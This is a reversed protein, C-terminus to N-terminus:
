DQQRRQFPPTKMRTLSLGGSLWGSAVDEKTTRKRKKAKTEEEADMWDLAIARRFQYSDLIRKADAGLKTHYSM